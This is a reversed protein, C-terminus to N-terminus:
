IKVLLVIEAIEGRFRCLGAGCPVKCYICLIMPETGARFLVSRGSTPAPVLPVQRFMTACVRVYRCRVPGSYGPGSGISQSWFYWLWPSNQGFFPLKQPLFDFKKLFKSITVKNNITDM